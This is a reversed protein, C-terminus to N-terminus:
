PFITGCRYSYVLKSNFYGPSTEGKSADADIGTSTMDTADTSNPYVSSMDLTQLENIESVVRECYKERIDYNEWNLSRFVNTRNVVDSELSTM